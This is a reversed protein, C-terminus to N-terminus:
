ETHRTTATASKQMKKCWKDARTMINKLNLTTLKADKVLPKGNVWVHEVHANNACYILQNIPNHLPQMGIHDMNIAIMDAAKGVELSGITDAIGLAKAGNLTAIELATHACIASADGAAHKGVLAATQMEMLMNLDNNSAAGDTGLAVNIHANLLKDTPCLGSALKLNSEPCHVVHAGSSQLIEIDVDNIQTMHVCQTFPSLVGLKALREIPRMGYAKLSTNVEEATEHLHVQIPSQREKAYHAIKTFVDNSVTYPAHPGFAINILDHSRYTDQLAFGKDFCEDAGNAWPTPFDMITFALQSRIGAELAVKATIEPFFYMDAFCTTGSLLMEAIALKSGDEVFAEDVWKQEAPWIHQELWPKLPLDDAYGRLLSMAAHGHSNILGPMLIHSDLTHWTTAEYNKQAEVTPIIAIIKGKNAILTCNEFVTHKPVIPVVWRASVALDIHIKPM